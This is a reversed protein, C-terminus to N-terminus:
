LCHRESQYHSGMNSRYNPDYFPNHPSSDKKETQKQNMPVCQNDLPAQRNYDDKPFDQNSHNCIQSNPNETQPMYLVPNNQEPNMESADTILPASYQPNKLLFLSEQQHQQLQDHQQKFLLQMQEQQQRQELKQQEKLQEQQQKFLEELKRQQEIQYRRQQEELKHQQEDFLRQHPLTNTSNHHVHNSKQNRPKPINPNIKGHHKSITSENIEPPVVIDRQSPQGSTQAFTGSSQSHASLEPKAEFKNMEDYVSHNLTWNNYMNFLGFM